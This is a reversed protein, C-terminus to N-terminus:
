KSQAERGQRKAGSSLAVPLWQLSLHTPNMTPTSAEFVRFAITEAPFRDM